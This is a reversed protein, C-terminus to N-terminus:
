QPGIEKKPPPKNDQDDTTTPIGKGALFDALSQRNLAKREDETETRTQQDSVDQAGAINQAGSLNQAGALDQALRAKGASAELRRALVDEVTRTTDDLGGANLPNVPMAGGRSLEDYRAAEAQAERLKVESLHREMNRVKDQFERQLAQAQQLSARYDEETRALEQSQAAIDAQVDQFERALTAAADTKGAQHNALIQREIQQAKATQAHIRLKLHDALGALQALATSYQAMRGRFDQRAAEMLAEPHGRELKDVFLGGIGRFLRGIREFIAM